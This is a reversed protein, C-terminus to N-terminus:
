VIVCIVNSTDCYHMCGVRYLGHYEVIAVLGFVAAEHMEHGVMGDCM